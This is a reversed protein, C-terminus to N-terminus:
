GAARFARANTRQFSGAPTTFPVEGSLVIKEYNPLLSVLIVRRNSRVVRKINQLKMTAAQRGFRRTIWFDWSAGM